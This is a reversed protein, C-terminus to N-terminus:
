SRHERQYLALTEGHDVIESVYDFGLRELLRISPQNHALTMAVFTPKESVADLHSLISQTAEYAYGCGQFEPLFAFDIDPNQMMWRNSM